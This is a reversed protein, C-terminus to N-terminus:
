TEGERNTRENGHNLSREIEFTTDHERQLHRDLKGVMAVPGEARVEHECDDMTCHTVHSGTHLRNILLFTAAVVVIIVVTELQGSCTGLPAVDCWTM